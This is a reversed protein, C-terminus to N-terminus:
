PISPVSIAELQGSTYNSVLLRQGGPVLAMERPFQGAPISGILAPRGALAPAVDVVSLDSTAGSAAFRNSDAVVVLSGNRVLTLGVPAEGVRVIAVLAQDPDSHLAAASFCLLDDSERATVWVERGDASTIVRVPNCGAAVTAVVSAAPDTEARALSIVTLTGQNSQETQSTVESTAYLWRGDPSVAMGVPAIGLPITGVFDAPGFGQTLARHLNFVAARQSDEQTVFAYDGDPSVAVETAGSGGGPDSLTGLEADPNGQEARAVSLVVAGSGSAALLYRGDHTLTEGVATGQPLLITRVMVPGLSPGIRLVEISNILAVFAWRGDPTVAVGFPNGPVTVMATRVSGLPPSAATATSCGPSPLGRAPLAPLAPPASAAPTAPAPSGPSQSAQPHATAGTCGACVMIATAAGCLAAVRVRM